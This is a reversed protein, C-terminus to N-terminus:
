EVDGFRNAISEIVNVTVANGMTKYRQTDSILVERGRIIGKATWNDPFGQLRECEMPTLRRIANGYSVGHIDQCNLTFSPEGDEKIRRGNQGEFGTTLVSRVVM